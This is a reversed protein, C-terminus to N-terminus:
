AFGLANVRYHTAAAPAPGDHDAVARIAVL